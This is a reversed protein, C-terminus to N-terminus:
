RIKKDKDRGIVYGAGAGLVGGIIAGKGRNGKSVVAGIIAGSGAGIATGKAAKSWGKKKTTTTTSATSNNSSSTTTTSTGTSTNNTSNVAGTNGATNAAPTANKNEPIIRTITTAKVISGTDTLYNSEKATTVGTLEMQKNADLSSTEKSKCAFLTTTIGIVLLIKKM